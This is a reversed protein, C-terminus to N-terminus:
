LTPPAKEPLKPTCPHYVRTGRITRGKRTKATIRVTITRKGLKRLDIKAAFGGRVHRVTVSKGNVTIKASVIGRRKVGQVHVEFFRAGSCPLRYVPVKYTTSQPTSAAPAIAAPLLLAGTLAAAIGARLVTQGSM